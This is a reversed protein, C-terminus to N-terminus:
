AQPFLLHNQPSSQNSKFLLNFLISGSVTTNVLLLILLGDTQFQARAKKLRGGALTISWSPYSKLTSLINSTFKHLKPSLLYAPLNIWTSSSTQSWSLFSASLHSPKLQLHLDMAITSLVALCVNVSLDM